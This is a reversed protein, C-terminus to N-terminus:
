ETNRGDELSGAGTCEICAFGPAQLLFGARRPNGLSLNGRGMGSLDGSPLFRWPAFMTNGGLGAIRLASSHLSTESAAPASPLIRIRRPDEMRLLAISSRPDAQPIEFRCRGAPLAEGQWEVEYPLTLWGRACAQGQAAPSLTLAALFLQGAPQLRLIPKRM